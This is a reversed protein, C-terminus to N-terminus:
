SEGSLMSSFNRFGLHMRLRWGWDCVALARLGPNFRINDPDLRIGERLWFEEVYAARQEPTDCGVPWGSAETKLKLWQDVYGAFLGRERAVAHPGAVSWEPYDWVKHHSVFESDPM